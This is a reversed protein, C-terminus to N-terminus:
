IEGSDRETNIMPKQYMSEFLRVYCELYRVSVEEWTFNLGTEYCELMMRKMRERDGILDLIGDRINELNSGKDFTLSCKEIALRDDLTARVIPVTGSLLYEYVKNPSVPREESWMPSEPRLLFFGLHARQTRHVVDKYPIEGLYQMRGEFDKMLADMISRIEQDFIRGAVTFRVNDDKEMISRMIEFMSRMDRDFDLNLVGFYVAEIADNADMGRIKNLVAEREFSGSVPYNPVVSVKKGSFVKPINSFDRSVFIVEAVRKGYWREFLGPVSIGFQNKWTEFYEHRDFVIVSGPFRKSLKVAMGLLYPDHVHLIIEDGEEVFEERLRKEIDRVGVGLSTKMAFLLGNLYPNEFRARDIVVARDTTEVNPYFNFNIRLVSYKDRISSIHKSIRNDNLSHADVVV